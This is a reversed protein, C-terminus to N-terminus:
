PHKRCGCDKPCDNSVEIFGLLAVTLCTIIIELGLAQKSYLLPLLDYFIDLM